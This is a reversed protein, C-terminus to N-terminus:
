KSLNLQTIYRRGLVFASAFFVVAFGFAFILRATKWSDVPEPTVKPTVKKPNNKPSSKNELASSKLLKIQDQCELLKAQIEPQMDSDTPFLQSLKTFLSCFLNLTELKAQDNVFLADKQGYAAFTQQHAELSLCIVDEEVDCKLAHHVTGYARALLYNPEEHEAITQLAQTFIKGALEATPSQIGEEISDYFDTLLPINRNCEAIQLDVTNDLSTMDNPVLEEAQRLCTRLQKYRNIKEGEDLSNWENRNKYVQVLTEKANSAAETSAQSNKPQARALGLKCEALFLFNAQTKPVEDILELFLDRAQDPQDVILRHAEQYKELLPNRTQEASSLRKSTPSLPPSIRDKALSDVKLVNENPVDILRPSGTPSGTPTLKATM